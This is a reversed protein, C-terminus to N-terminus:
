DAVANARWPDHRLALMRSPSQESAPLSQQRPLREFRHADIGLRQDPANQLPQPTLSRPRM